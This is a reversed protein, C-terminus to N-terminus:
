IEKDMNLRNLLRFMRRNLEAVNQVNNLMTEASQIYRGGVLENGCFTIMQHLSEKTVELHFQLGVVKHNYIFAQNVCAESSALRLAGLPLDFTDGHWHFVQFPDSSEGLLQDDSAPFIPFWGIEKEGNPYVNAGLSTAILQAGLCIGIVTKGSQIALRIFEKEGSLWDYKEEDYVGMPGGMVILWDFDSLEPMQKNEFFKTASLSHRKESVWDAICGLGEFHVHQLYHIRLTKM